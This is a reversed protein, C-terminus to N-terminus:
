SVVAELGREIRHRGREGFIRPSNRRRHIGGEVFHPKWAVFQAGDGRHVGARQADCFRHRFRLDIERPGLARVWNM